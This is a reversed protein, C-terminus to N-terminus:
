WCGLDDRMLKAGLIGEKMNEKNMHQIGFFLPSKSEKGWMGSRMVGAVLVWIEDRRVWRSDKMITQPQSSNILTPLPM